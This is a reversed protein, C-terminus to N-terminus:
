RTLQPLLGYLNTTFDVMIQLLWSALVILVLSVVVLKPVFTLTQEQIQTTAQIVSVFLGVVMGALLPPGALEMVTVLAQRAVSIAFVDNM